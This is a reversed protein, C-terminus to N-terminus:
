FNIGAQYYGRALNFAASLKAKTGVKLNLEAIEKRDKVDQVISSASNILNAITNLYDDCAESKINSWLLNALRLTTPKLENTSIM